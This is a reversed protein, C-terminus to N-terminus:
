FFRGLEGFIEWTFWNDSIEGDEEETKFDDDDSQSADDDSKSEEEKRKSISKLPKM